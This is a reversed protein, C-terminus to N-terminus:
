YRPDYITRALYQIMQATADSSPVGSTMVRCLRQMRKKAGPNSERRAAACVRQGDEQLADLQRVYKSHIQALVRRSESTPSPFLESDRL